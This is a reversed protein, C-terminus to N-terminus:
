PKVKKIEFVANTSDAVKFKEAVPLGQVWVIEDRSLFVPHRDRDAAAIGKARMIEKLKQSGPAGLPQYRDGQRRSRITLPFHLKDADLYAGAADDFCLSSVDRRDIIRGEYWLALVQVVLERRGDWVYEYAIRPQSKEWLSIM